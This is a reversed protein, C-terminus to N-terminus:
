AFTQYRGYMLHSSGGRWGAGERTTHTVSKKVLSTRTGVEAQRFALDGHNHNQPEAATQTTGGEKQCNFDRLILLLVCPRSGVASVQVWALNECIYTQEPDGHDGVM